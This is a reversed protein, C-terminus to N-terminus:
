EHKGGSRRRFAGRLPHHACRRPWPAPLPVWGGHRGTSTRLTRTKEGPVARSWAQELPRHEDLWPRHVRPNAPKPTKKVRTFGHNERPRGEKKPKSSAATGQREGAAPRSGAEARSDTSWGTPNM